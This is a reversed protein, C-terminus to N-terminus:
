YLEVRFFFYESYFKITVSFDPTIHILKGLLNEDISSSNVEFKMIQNDYMLKKINKRETKIISKLENMKVNYAMTDKDDIMLQMLYSNQQQIASNVLDILENVQQTSVNMERYKRICKEEFTDIKHLLVDCQHNIEKIREERALKIQRRLELCDGTILYEGNEVEFVLKNVQIDLDRLNQKLKEAEHGRSIEKPKKAILKVLARNIQFGNVPIMEEKNCVICKLKNDKIQRETQQVCKFCITKGCCPLIRPPYYEGYPQSCNECNLLETIEAPEFFM